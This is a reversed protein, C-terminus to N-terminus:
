ATIQTNLKAGVYKTRKNPWIPGNIKNPRTANRAATFFFAHTNAPALRVITAM